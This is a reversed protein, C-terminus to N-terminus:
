EANLEQPIFQVSPSVGTVYLSQAEIILSAPTGKERGTFGRV